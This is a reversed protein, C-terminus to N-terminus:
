PRVEIVRIVLQFKQSSFIKLFIRTLVYSTAGETTFISNRIEIEYM